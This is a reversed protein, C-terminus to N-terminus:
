NGTRLVEVKSKKCVSHNFANKLFDILELSSVLTKPATCSYQRLVSRAVQTREM